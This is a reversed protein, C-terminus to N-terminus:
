CEPTSTRKYLDFLKESIQRYLSQVDRDGGFFCLYENMGLLAYAWARPSIFNPIVPLADHFLVDALNRRGPAEFHTIVSGMVWMARGHSDESGPGDAWGRAYSVFNKFRGFRKEFAHTFFALHRSAFARTTKASLAGTEEILSTLLFARANDDLCYGDDYRPINFVAHQVIGTGDGILELHDLKIEPLGIPRDALTQVYFTTQLHRARRELAKNFTLIVLKGEVGPQTKSSMTDPLDPIGRPIADIRENSVSHVERLLTAGHVNM